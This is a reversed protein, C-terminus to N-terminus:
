NAFLKPMTTGRRKAALLLVAILALINPYERMKLAIGLVAGHFPRDGVSGTNSGNAHHVKGGNATSQGLLAPSM